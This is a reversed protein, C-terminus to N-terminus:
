AVAIAGADAVAGLAVGAAVSLAQGRPRASLQEFALGCLLGGALGGLHGGISIGGFVFTIGLNLLLLMGIGSEMLAIGRARMM